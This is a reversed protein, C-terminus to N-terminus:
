PSEMARWALIATSVQGALCRKMDEETKSRLVLQKM